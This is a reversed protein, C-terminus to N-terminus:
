EWLSVTLLYEPLIVDNINDNNCNDTSDVGTYVKEGDKDLLNVVMKNIDDVDKNRASLVACNSLENFCKNRIIDAYTYNVIDPNSIGREKIPLIQRFDAGLIVIKGGFPINSKMIDRLTRDMIELAYKPSMLANPLLTAAIGTFAMNCVRGGKSRILYWLTQYLFTKGCGGPGDIYLCKSQMETSSQFINLVYDVIEKQKNNLQEYKENGQLNDNDCNINNGQLQIQMYDKQLEYFRAFNELSHGEEILLSKINFYARSHSEFIDHIRRYDESFKDKFENWLDQPNIPQCHILIRVFLSPISQPMKWLVGDNLARRWEYDDEILGLALCASSFNDYTVEDVTCLDEFSKKGKVM